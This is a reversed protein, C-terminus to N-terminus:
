AAAISVTFSTISVPGGVVISVTNLNLTAGSTGVDCDFITDGSNDAIRAFTATGTADASADQTITSFTLTGSSAAPASPDTFTLTALLTNGSLATDANAPQTGSYIKITGAGVDADIKAALADLMSNRTSAAIRFNAM